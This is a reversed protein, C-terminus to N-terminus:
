SKGRRSTGGSSRSLSPPLGGPAVAPSLLADLEREVAARASPSVPLLPPRPPGGDYGTADMAAKLAAVGHQAGVLRAFPALRRQIAWADAIRGQRVHLQMEACLEPVVAAVALVAGHCGACLAHFLTAASGALVTFSEPTRSLFEGIQALDSGSEKLGAVNPHEALREVTDPLLNVGTFMTVNYLLVPVPSADAVRLYHGVFADTTMQPKFFSPTRVLVADAGIDAARRAAAITARTSERGVGAILPRDRPMCERAATVVLDSEDEDLQPAEGTSGLVVLGTLPTGMWRVINRRFDAEDVTDDDRFATPVPAFIGEFRPV